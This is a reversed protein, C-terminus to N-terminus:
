GTAAAAPASRRRPSATSARANITGGLYAMGNADVEVSDAREFSSGLLTAFARVGTSGYKVLFADSGNPPNGPATQFAGATTPFRPQVRQTRDRLNRGAADVAVGFV